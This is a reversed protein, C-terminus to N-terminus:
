STQPPSIRLWPLSVMNPVVSEIAPILAFTPVIGPILVKIAPVLAFTLVGGIYAPKFPMLVMPVPKFPVPTLGPILKPPVPVTPAPKFPVSTLVPILKPPVMGPVQGYSVM